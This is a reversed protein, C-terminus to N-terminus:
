FEYGFANSIIESSKACMEAIVEDVSKTNMESEFKAMFRAMNRTIM